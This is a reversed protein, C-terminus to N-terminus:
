NEKVPTLKENYYDYVADFGDPTCLLIDDGDTFLITREHEDISNVFKPNGLNSNLLDTHDRSPTSENM